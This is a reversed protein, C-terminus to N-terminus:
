VIFKNKIVVLYIGCSNIWIGLCQIGDEVTGTKFQLVNIDRVSPDRGEKAAIDEVAFNHFFVHILLCEVVYFSVM